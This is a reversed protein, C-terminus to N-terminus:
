RARVLGRFFPRFTSRSVIGGMVDVVGDRAVDGSREALDGHVEVNRRIAKAAEEAAQSNIDCGFITAGQRAFLTAIATGNGWANNSSNSANQGQAGIGTILVIKNTLNHLPKPPPM